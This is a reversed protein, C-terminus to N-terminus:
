QENYEGGYYMKLINYILKKVNHRILEDKELVYNNEILNIGLKKIKEKEEFNMRIPVSKEKKYKDKIKNDIYGNNVFVTDINIGESHELIMNIHDIVRFNYTEYSQTMINMIYYIKAKTNRLAEAIDNFVLNPIISTFLSGPPIIIIDSNYIRDIANKLPKATIPEIYIRKIRNDKERFLSIESEGKILTGDSYEAVIDIDDISIPLVEGVISFMSSVEDIANLFDGKIDTMAALILNGLSLGELEGTTFRYKMLKEYKEDEILASICARIDGPPLIGLNRRLLGSNGGNDSVAVIAVIDNFDKKLFKLIHSHGTGGGITTIKLDKKVM